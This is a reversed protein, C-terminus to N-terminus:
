AFPQYNGFGRSLLRMWAAQDEVAIDGNASPNLISSPDPPKLAGWADHLPVGAHPTGPLNPHAMHSLWLQTLWTIFYRDLSIAPTPAGLNPTKPTSDTHIRPRTDLRSQAMEGAATLSNDFPDTWHGFSLPDLM